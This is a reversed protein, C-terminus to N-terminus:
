AVYTIGKRARRITDPHVRLLVALDTSPLKSTRILRLRERTLKAKGHGLGRATNGNRAKDAENEVSTGWRLNGRKNNSSNDDWHLALMGRPRPGEFAELVVAAVLMTRSRLEVRFTIRLRGRADRRPKMVRPAADLKRVKTRAGRALWSRVRGLDSVEYGPFGVVPKWAEVRKNDDKWSM